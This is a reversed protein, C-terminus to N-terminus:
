KEFGKRNLASSYKEPLRCPKGDRNIPVHVTYGEAIL